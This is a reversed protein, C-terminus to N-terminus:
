RGYCNMEPLWFNVTATNESCIARKSVGVHEPARAVVPIITGDPFIEPITITFSGDDSVVGEVGNGIVIAGAVPEGVGVEYKRWLDYITGTVVTTTPVPPAPSYVTTAVGYGGVSVEAALVSEFRTRSSM